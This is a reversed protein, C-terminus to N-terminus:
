KPLSKKSKQINPLLRTRVPSDKAILKHPDEENDSLFERPYQHVETTDNEDDTLMSSRILDKSVLNDTSFTQLMKSFGQGINHLNMSVKNRKTSQNRITMPLKKWNYFDVQTGELNVLDRECNACKWGIPKKILSAEERQSDDEVRKQAKKSEQIAALQTKSLAYLEARLKKIEKELAAIKERLKDIEELDVKDAKMPLSQYEIVALKKNVDDKFAKFRAELDKLGRLADKGDQDVSTVSNQSIIKIPGTDKSQKELADLRAECLNTKGLVKLMQREQEEM